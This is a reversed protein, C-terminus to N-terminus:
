LKLGVSLGDRIPLITTFLEESAASMMNYKHVGLTRPDDQREVVAGHWLVNDAILLGGQRLRPLAREFALPYRAKDCDVFIIDFLGQQREILEIADGVEVVVCHDLQARHFYGSAARAIEADEETLVVQGRGGMAKVFWYASYGFGSGFEFVRRAQLLMTYQALVSGVLPGIVPFNDRAARQEM